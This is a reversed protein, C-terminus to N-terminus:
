IRSKKLFFLWVVESRTKPKPIQHKFPQCCSSLLIFKTINIKFIKRLNANRTGTGSPNLLPQSQFQPKDTTGEGEGGSALIAESANCTALAELALAGDVDAQNEKEEEQKVEAEDQQSPPTSRFM